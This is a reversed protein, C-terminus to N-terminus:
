IALSKGSTSRLGVGLNGVRIAATGLCSV